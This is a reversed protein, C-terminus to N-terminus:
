KGEEQDRAGAALAAAIWEVAAKRSRFHQEGANATVYGREDYGTGAWWRVGGRPGPSWATVGVVDGPERPRERDRTVLYRTPGKEDRYFMRPGPHLWLGAVREPKSGFGIQDAGTYEISLARDSTVFVAAGCKSCAFRYTEKTLQGDFNTREARTVEMLETDQRPCDPAHAAVPQYEFYLRHANESLATM